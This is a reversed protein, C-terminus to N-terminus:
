TTIMVRVCDALPYKDKQLQIIKSLYDLINNYCEMIIKGDLFLGILDYNIVINDLPWRMEQYAFIHDILQFNPNEKLAAVERIKKGTKLKSLKDLFAIREDDLIGYIKYQEKLFDILGKELHEDKIEWSYKKKEKSISLNYKNLNIKQSLESILFNLSDEDVKESKTFSMRQVIGTALYQGM